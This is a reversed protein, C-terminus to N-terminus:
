STVQVATNSICGNDKFTKSTVIYLGYSINYMANKGM